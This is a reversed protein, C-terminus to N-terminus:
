FNFGNNFGPVGGGYYGNFGGQYYGGSVYPTLNVAALNPWNVSVTNPLKCKIDDVEKAIPSVLSNIYGTIAATQNANDIQSRLANNSSLLGDIKEQMDRERADCFEKVMTTKLDAIADVTRQGSGAIATGLTNTQEVTRLQNEYGQSTVLPKMECCCQCLQSALSADGSQIANILQPVSVAQQLALSSLASKLSEVDSNLLNFDQGTMTALNQVAARSAEGQANIANMLLERGANNDIQNSIFGAGNGGGFGGFGNGFAGNGFLLGLLFGIGGYALGGGGFGGLGGFGAGSGLLMGPILGNGGFGGFGNNGAALMWPLISNAQNQQDPIYTVDAM